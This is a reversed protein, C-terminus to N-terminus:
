FTVSCVKADFDTCWHLFLLAFISIVISVVHIHQM